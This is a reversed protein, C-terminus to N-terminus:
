ASIILTFALKEIRHYREEIGHLARSTFYVPKQTGSEERLLASSVASPYVALYLYLIEGELARSLM